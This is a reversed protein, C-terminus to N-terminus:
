DKRRRRSARAVDCAYSFAARPLRQLSRNPLRTSRCSDIRPLHLTGADACSASAPMVNCIGQMLDDSFNNGTFDFDDGIHLNRQFRRKPISRSYDHNGAGARNGVPPVLLSSRCTGSSPSEANRIFAGRVPNAALRDSMQQSFDILLQAVITRFRNSSLHRKEGLDSRFPFQLRQILKAARRIRSRIEGLQKRRNQTRLFVAVLQCLLNQIVSCAFKGAECLDDHPPKKSLPQRSLNSNGNCAPDELM